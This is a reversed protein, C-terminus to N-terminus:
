EKHFLYDTHNIRKTNFWLSKMLQLTDEKNPDDDFIEAIIDIDKLKKLTEKMWQLVQYEHWEVDIMILKIDETHIWLDLQDFIKTEITTIEDKDENEHIIHSHWM